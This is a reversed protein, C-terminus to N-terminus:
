SDTIFAVVLIVVEAEVDDVGFFEVFQFSRIGFSNTLLLFILHFIPPDFDVLNRLSEDDMEEMFEVILIELFEVVIDSEGWFVFVDKHFTIVLFLQSEVMLFSVNIFVSDVVFM